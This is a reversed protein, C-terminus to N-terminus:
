VFLYLHYYSHHYSLSIDIKTLCINIRWHLCTHYYSGIDVGSPDDDGLDSGDDQVLQDNSDDQVLQVSNLNDGTTDM